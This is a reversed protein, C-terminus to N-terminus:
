ETRKQTGQSKKERRKSFFPLLILKELASITILAFAIKSLAIEEQPMHKEPDANPIDADRVIAFKM